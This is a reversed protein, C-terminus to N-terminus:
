KFVATQTIWADEFDSITMRYTLGGDGPDRIMLRGLEDLGDVVVFHGVKGAGLLAIWPRNLRMLDSLGGPVVGGIWGDGLAAALREASTPGTGLQAILESQPIGTLM